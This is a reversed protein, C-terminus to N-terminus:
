DYDIAPHTYHDTSRLLSAARDVPPFLLSLLSVVRDLHVVDLFHGDQWQSYIKGGKSIMKSITKVRKKENSTCLISAIQLQSTFCHISILASREEAAGEEGRSSLVLIM